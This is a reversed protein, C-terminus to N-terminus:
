GIRTTKGDSVERQDKENRDRLTGGRVALKQVIRTKPAWHRRLRPGPWICKRAIGGHAEYGRLHLCLLGVLIGPRKRSIRRSCCILICTRNGGSMEGREGVLMSNECDAQLLETPFPKEFSRELPICVYKAEQPVGDCAHWARRRRSGRVRRIIHRGWRGRAVNQPIQPSDVVDRVPKLDCGVLKASEANPSAVVSPTALNGDHEVPFFRRDKVHRVERCNLDELTRRCITGDWRLLQRRPSCRQACWCMPLGM